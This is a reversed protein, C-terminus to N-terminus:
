GPIIVDFNYYKIPKGMSNESNGFSRVTEKEHLEDEAYIHSIHESITSISRDFQESMEEQTLWVTEDVM